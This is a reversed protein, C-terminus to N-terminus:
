FNVIVFDDKFCLMKQFLWKEDVCKVMINAGHSKNPVKFVFISFLLIMLIEYTSLEDNEDTVTKKELPPQKGLRVTVILRRTEHHL